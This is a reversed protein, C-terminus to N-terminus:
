FSNVENYDSFATKYKSLLEEYNQVQLSSLSKQVDTSNSLFIKMEDSNFIPQHKYLKLCFKNLLKMRM